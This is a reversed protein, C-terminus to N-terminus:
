VKGLNEFDEFDFRVDISTFKFSVGAWYGINEALFVLKFLFNKYLSFCAFFLSQVSMIIHGM